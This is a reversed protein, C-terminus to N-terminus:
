LGGTPNDAHPRSGVWDALETTPMPRAIGYGQGFHCGLNILAVCHAATEVGKAVVRRRFARALGVIGEVVAQNEDDDLMGRVFSQDIKLTDVRLRRLFSLSAHGTGFNDLAFHVGFERCAEMAPVVDAMGDLVTTELVELEVAAAPV